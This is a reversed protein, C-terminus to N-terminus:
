ATQTRTTPRGKEHKRTVRMLGAGSLAFLTLTTLMIGFQTGTRALQAPPSAVTSPQATLSDQGNQSQMSKDLTDQDKTGNSGPDQPNKTETEKDATDALPALLLSIDFTPLDQTTPAAKPVSVVGTPTPDCVDGIGDDDFDLQNPNLHDPCNDVIDDILDGDRTIQVDMTVDAMRGYRDHVRLLVPGTYPEKWTYRALPQAAEEHTDNVLDIIGDGTFDWEYKAVDAGQPFSISADFTGEQAIALLTPGTFAAHPEPVILPRLTHVTTHYGGTRKALRKVSESTNNDRDIGIVEVAGVTYTERALQDWDADKEEANLDGLVILIQRANPNDFQGIATAVAAYLSTTGSQGQPTITDIFTELNSESLNTVLNVTDHEADRTERAENAENESSPTGQADPNPANATSTETEPATRADTESASTTDSDPTSSAEVAASADTDPAINGTTETEPASARETGSEAPQASLDHHTILGFRARYGGHTASQTTETIIRRMHAKYDDLAEATLQTNEVVFMVDVNRASSRVSRVNDPIGITKELLAAIQQHGTINPHYWPAVNTLSPKSIVTGDPGIEGEDELMENLWRIPNSVNIDPDPEHTAFHLETPVYTAKVTNDPNSNWEEVLKAQEITAFQGFARINKAAPYYKDSWFWGNGISYDSEISLLPYGVLIIKADPRLKKQVEEFVRVINARTEPFKENAYNIAKECGAYSRVLQVFCNKVIDEFKIDNGGITLMVLDSNPDLLPIQKELVDQTVGGSHALNRITTQVGQENLWNVYVHGWNKSSRYSNEPGYYAGAGNGATYSDGLLTVDLYRGSDDAAAPLTLGATLSLAAFAACLKKTLTFM